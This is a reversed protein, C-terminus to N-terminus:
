CKIVIKKEGYKEESEEEGHQKSLELQGSTLM